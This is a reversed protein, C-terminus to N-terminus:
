YVRGGNVWVGDRGCDSRFLWGLARGRRNYPFLDGVLGLSLPAVGSAGLGTLLRMGILGSASSVLPTLGTLVVFAALAVLLVRRRGLLDSLPGYIITTSGYALLYAPVIFSIEATSVGFVHSLRPLLPAVMFGQFFILFLAASLIWLLSDRNDGGSPAHSQSVLM